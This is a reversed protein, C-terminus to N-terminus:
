ISQRLGLQVGANLDQEKSEAVEPPFPVQLDGQKDVEKEAPKRKRQSMRLLHHDDLGLVIAGLAPSSM